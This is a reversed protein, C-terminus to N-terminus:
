RAGGLTPFERVRLGPEWELPNGGKKDKYYIPIAHRDANLSEVYPKAGAQKFFCPVNAAECQRITDRAWQLDFPRAGPGSEGGIIIQDLVRVDELRPIDEIRKIPVQSRLWRRFDVAALAPEYSVIRCAAPTALLEPIRADATPQNEVSVGLIVNPLPWQGDQWSRNALATGYFGALLPRCIFGPMTRQRGIEDTFRAPRRIFWERMRKARKTLVIFTHAPCLAMVAFVRDIAEDSLEEHFLDSMSNVFCRTPKRWKMPETLMHEILEVKGTWHPGDSKMVAFPEGTTPSKHGPLGRASFREAYCHTCGASVRSCGRICNWTRDCWEIKTLGM